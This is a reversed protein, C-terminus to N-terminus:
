ALSVGIFNFNKFPYGSADPEGGQVQKSMADVEVQFGPILYTGDAHFLTQMEKLKDTRTAENGDAQADAWLQTFQDNKWNGEPYFCGPVLSSAVQGSISLAPWLTAFIPDQAYHSTFYTTSDVNKVNLTIGGDRLQEALVVESNTVFGSVAIDLTLGEAGAEKLLSKAKEVDRERQPLEDGMYAPDSPSFLDNAVKGEGGQLQDLMRQRDVLLKVAERVNPDDFPKQGADLVFGGWGGTDAKLVQINSGFTGALATPVKGAADLSGGSLANAMATTDAFNQMILGDLLAPTPFNEFRVFETSSGANHQKLKWAGAGVPNAPDYKGDPYIASNGHCLGNLIFANPRLLAFRVTLEDDVKSNAIDLDTLFAASSASPDVMLQFSALVDQATIPRGNHFELGDKLRVVVETPSDTNIEEALYLVPKGDVGIKGLGVNMQRGIAIQFDSLAHMVDLTDNVSGQTYGFRLVGGPKPVATSSAATSETVGGSTASGGVTTTGGVSGKSDSGCAALLGAFSLAGAGALLDRRSLPKREFPSAM